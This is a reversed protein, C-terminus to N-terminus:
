SWSETADSSCTIADMAVGAEEEGEVEERWSLSLPRSVHIL